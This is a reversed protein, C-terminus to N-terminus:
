SIELFIFTTVKNTLLIQLISTVLCMIEAVIYKLAYFSNDGISDLYNKALEHTLKNGLSYLKTTM